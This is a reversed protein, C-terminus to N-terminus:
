KLQSLFSSMDVPKADVRTKSIQFAPTCWEGCSCQTGSWYWAGIRAQCHPCFLKGSNSDCKGMWPMEDLFYSTCDVESKLRERKNWKFDHQGKGPQHQKINIDSFLPTRCWKCNYSFSAADDSSETSGGTQTTTIPTVSQTSHTTLNQENEQTNYTNPSPNQENEQTNNTNPFYNQENEQTNITNPPSPPYELYISHPHLEKYYDCLQKMFGENISITPRCEKVLDHADQPTLNLIKILYSICIAAARSNGTPCHILVYGENKGEIIFNSVDEFYQKINAEEKDQVDIVKYKFALGGKQLTHAKKFASVLNDGLAVIHTIHM